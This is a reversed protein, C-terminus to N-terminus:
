RPSRSANRRALALSILGLRAFYDNPWRQHDQGRARGQLKHRKREIARLRGRVWRDEKEFVNRVSHKFYGFWGRLTRNVEEIIDKM